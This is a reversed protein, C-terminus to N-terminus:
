GSDHTSCYHELMQYLLLLSEDVLEKVENRFENESGTWVTSSWQSRLYEPNSDHIRVKLVMNYYAASSKNSNHLTLLSVSLGELGQVSEEDTNDPRWAYIAQNMYSFVDDLETGNYWFGRINRVDRLDEVGDFDYSCPLSLSQIHKSVGSENKISLKDPGQYSCSSLLALLMLRQLTTM